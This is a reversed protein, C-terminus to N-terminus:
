LVTARALSEGGVVSNECHDERSLPLGSVDQRSGPGASTRPSNAVSVSTAAFPVGFQARVEVSVLFHLPVM